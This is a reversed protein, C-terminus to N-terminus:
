KYDNIIILFFILLYLVIKGRSTIEYNPQQDYIPVNLNKVLEDKDQKECQLTNSSYQGWYDNNDYVQDGLVEFYSLSKSLRWSETEATKLMQTNNRFAEEVRIMKKEEFSLEPIILDELSVGTIATPLSIDPERVATLIKLLGKQKFSSKLQNPCLVHLTGPHTCTACITNFTIVLKDPPCVFAKCQCNKLQCERRFVCICCIKRGHKRCPLLHLTIFADLLSISIEGNMPNKFTKAISKKEESSLPMGISKYYLEIATDFVRHDVEGRRKLDDPLFERVHIKKPPIAKVIDQNENDKKNRLYFIKSNLYKQMFDIAFQPKMWSRFSQRLYSLKKKGAKALFGRVLRQIEPVSNNMHILLEKRRTRDLYLELIMRSLMKACQKLVISEAPPIYIVEAVKSLKQRIFLQIKRACRNSIFNWLKINFVLRRGRFGRFLRQIKLAFKWRNKIIQRIQMVMLVSDKFKFFNLKKMFKKIRRAAWQKYLELRCQHGRVVKQIKLAGKMRKIRFMKVFKTRLFRRM